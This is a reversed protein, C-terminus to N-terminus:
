PWTPPEFTGSAKIQMVAAAGRHRVAVGFGREYHAGTLPYNPAEGPIMRLGQSETSPHQRFALPNRSYNPGGTAVALVYGSPIYHSEFILADGYSGIIPLGNFEAPPLNGVIEQDTLYAPNASSPIFDFPNQTLNDPDRRLSRIVGGENPNVMIVLREGSARLGHGHEQIHVILDRLDGGDVTAAGSVLYHTHGPAFTRGAYPPPVDTSAGRYLSYVTLGTDRAQAEGPTTLAGLTKRFLLRNDAELINAHVADVQARSADRLFQRTYRAALDYWAIPYGMRSYTPTARAAKPLGFESAEEFETREGDGAVLAHTDTTDFTFLRSIVSRIRNVEALSSQFETWIVNLDIGDATRTVVDAGVNFGRDAGTIDTYTTV